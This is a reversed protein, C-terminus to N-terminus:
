PTIVDNLPPPAAFTAAKEMFMKFSDSAPPLLPISYMWECFSPDDTFLFKSELEKREEPSCLSLLPYRAEQENPSDKHLPVLRASMFRAMSSGERFSRIVPKPFRNRSLDEAWDLAVTLAASARATDQSLTNGVWIFIDTGHDLLLLDKSQMALTMPPVEVFDSEGRLVYLVPLLIKDALRPPAHLFRAQLARREDHHGLIEGLMPGRALHYMREALPALETPLARIQRRLPAAPPGFQRAMEILTARVSKAAAKRAAHVWRGESLSARGAELVALKATLHACAVPNVSKLYQSASATTPLRHTMVRTVAGASDARQYQAVFQFYVYDEPIDEALRLVGTLVHHTELTRMSCANVSWELAGTVTQAAMGGGIPLGSAGGVLPEAPGIIHSIGVGPSLRVDV